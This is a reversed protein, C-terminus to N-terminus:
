PTSTPPPRSFHAYAPPRSIFEQSSGTLLTSLQESPVPMGVAQAPSASHMAVCLPCLESGSESAAVLVHGKGQPSTVHEISHTHATQVMLGLFVALVGLWKRATLPLAIAVSAKSSLRKSTVVNGTHRIRGAKPSLYQAAPAAREVM